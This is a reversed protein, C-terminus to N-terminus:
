LIELIEGMENGSIISELARAADVHWRKLTNALEEGNKTLSLLSSRKDSEITEKVVLNKRALASISDSVAPQSIGLERSLDIIRRERPSESLYIIIQAQLLTIGHKKAESMIMFRYARSIRDIASVIKSTADSM